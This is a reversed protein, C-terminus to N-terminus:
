IEEKEKKKKLILGKQYTKKAKPIDDKMAYMKAFDTLTTIAHKEGLKLWIEIGKEYLPEAEQFRKNNRYM